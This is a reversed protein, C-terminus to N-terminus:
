ARPHAENYVKKMKEVSVHAYIQTTSLSSHGLLEQVSRLDAGADLMHTAFSHRFAHPTLSLSLGAEALYKKLLREVSRSTLREGHLNLFAPNDSGGRPKAQWIADRRDMAKKLADAAPKGIPCLREKDGKGKVKILGSIMDIDRDRVSVLESVRMGSSYLVELMAADRFAAYEALKDTEEGAHEGSRGLKALPASLLANMQGQSVTVPLKRGRKPSIVGAFPNSAVYEERQLFRFFARLSSVKRGSTAPDRGHKQFGVLFRRAAFKDVRSWPLPPKADQGWIEVAFQRIDGAYNLVTHPSANREGTMYQVFHKVCPDGRIDM